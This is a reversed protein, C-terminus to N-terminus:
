PVPSWLETLEGQENVSLGEQGFANLDEGAAHGMTNFLNSMRRNQTTGERPYIVTRGDTKFGLGKGGILLLPWEKKISHHTEGNNSMYIILTRDLMTGDGEPISKLRRAMKAIMEVNRETVKRPYEAWPNDTGGGGANHLAPHRSPVETLSDFTLSTHNIDWNGAAGSSLVLMNTLGGILAAMGIEFHLTLQDFPHPSDFAPMGSTPTDGPGYPLKVMELRRKWEDTGLQGYSEILSELSEFYKELRRYEPSSSPLTNMVRQVDKQAFALTKNRADFRRRTEGSSIPGFLQQYSLDTRTLIPAPEDKGHACLGYVFQSSSGSIGYRLADFPTKGRGGQAVEEGRVGSLRSLFSDISAGKPGGQPKYCGLAGYSATHNDGSHAITSSLGLVIATDQELSDTGGLASLSRADSMQPTTIVKASANTYRDHFVRDTGIPGKSTWSDIDQRVASPLVNVPEIGNGEVVFIFRTALATGDSASVYRMFPMVLPSLAGLGLGQLFRRRNFM